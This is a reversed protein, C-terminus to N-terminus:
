SSLRHEGVAFFLLIVVLIGVLAVVKNERKLYASAGERIADAISVMKENGQPQKLVQIILFVGYALAAVSALFAFLFIDM